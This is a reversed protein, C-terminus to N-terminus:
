CRWRTQNTRWSDDASLNHKKESTRAKKDSQCGTLLLSTGVVAIGTVKVWKKM